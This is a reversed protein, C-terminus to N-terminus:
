AMGIRLVLIQEPLNQLKKTFSKANRFSSSNRPVFDSHVRSDAKSLVQFVVQTNDAIQRKELFESRGHKGARGALGENSFDCAQGRFIPEFSGSSGSGHANQLARVEQANVIDAEEAAEAVDEVCYSSSLFAVVYEHM